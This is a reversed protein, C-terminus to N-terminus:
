REVLLADVVRHVVDAGQGPPVLGLAALRFVGETTAVLARASREPDRVDLLTLDEEILRQVDRLVVRFAAAVDDHRAAEAGITTWLSASAPDADDGLALTADIVARIRRVPGRAESLRGQLRQRWGAALRDVLALLIERKSAFHYHVLGGTLGAVKAIRGISAEAYSHSELVRALADVIQARRVETTARPM